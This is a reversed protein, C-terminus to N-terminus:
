VLRLVRERCSARGIEGTETLNGWKDKFKDKLMELQVLLEKGKPMLMETEEAKTLLSVLLRIDNDSVPNRSGHRGLHNIYFPEYGEPAPTYKQKEFKYPMYTGYMRSDQKKCGICLIFIPILIIWAIKMQKM